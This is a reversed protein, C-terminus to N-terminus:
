TPIAALAQRKTELPADAAFGPWDPLVQKLLDHIRREAEADVPEASLTSELAARLAPAAERGHAVIRERAAANQPDARLEVLAANVDEAVARRHLEAAHQALAQIDAATSESWLDGARALAALIDQAQALTQPKLRDEVAPRLEKWLNDTNLAPRCDALVKALSDDFRNSLLSIRTLEVAVKQLEPSQAAHLDRVARQYTALADDLRDSALQLVAIRVRTRGLAAADPPNAAALKREAMLLLELTRRRQVAGNVPLRETWALIENAPRSALIRAAGKWASNRINEDSEADSALREWLAALVDDGEGYQALLDVCARRVGADPDSVQPILAALLEARPATPSAGVGPAGASSALLLGIGRIAALRVAVPEDPTLASTFVTGARADTLPGLAGLLRERTAAATSDTREYIALLMEAVRRRNEDSLVGRAALRGLATIAENAAGADESRAWSLLADAASDSGVYGLGNLLTRRVLSESEGALLDLFRREDSSDRLAATTQVAAARVEPEDAQLLSRVRQRLPEGIEKGEAIRAQALELGLLRTAAAEDELYGALLTARSEDASRVYAERLAATLRRELNAIQQRHQWDRAALRRLQV